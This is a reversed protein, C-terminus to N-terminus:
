ELHGPGEGRRLGQPDGPGGQLEGHVVRLLPALETARDDLVLAYREPQGVHGHLHVGGPEQRPPGRPHGLVRHLEGPRLPGHRLELGTLHGHGDGLLGDLDQSTVAVDLVERDLLPVAVGLDVGDELPGALDLPQHDAPGQGAVSGAGNRARDPFGSARARRAASRATTGTGGTALTTAGGCRRSAWGWGDSRWSSCAPWRVVPSPSDWSSFPSCSSSPWSGAPWRSGIAIPDCGRRGVGEIM